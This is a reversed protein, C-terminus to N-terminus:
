NKTAQQQAKAAETAQASNFDPLINKVSDTWKLKGEGVLKAMVTATFSKSISGVQFLTNPDVTAGPENVVGKVDGSAVFDDSYKAGKYGVGDAPRQEKVGYGKSLIVKNDLSIALSFGPLQWTKQVEQAYKDIQDALKQECKPCMGKHTGQQVNAKNQEQAFLSGTSILIITAISILFHKM